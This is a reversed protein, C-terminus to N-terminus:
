FDDRLCIEYEAIRIFVAYQTYDLCTSFEIVIANSWLPKNLEKNENNGEYYVFSKALILGKCVTLSYNKVQFVFIYKLLFAM